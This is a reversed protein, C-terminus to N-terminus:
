LNAGCYSNRRSKKPSRNMRFTQISGSGDIPWPLKVLQQLSMRVIEGPAEEGLPGRSSGRCRAGGTKTL